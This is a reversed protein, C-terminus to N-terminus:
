VDERVGGQRSAQLIRQYEGTLLKERGCLCVTIIRRPDNTQEIDLCYDLAPKIWTRDGDHKNVERLLIQELVQRGPRPCYIKHSFRSALAGDMM